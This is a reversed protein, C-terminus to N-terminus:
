DDGKGNLVQDNIYDELLKAYQLYYKRLKHFEDDEVEEFNSYHKFCYHFGEDRTKSRVYQAEEIKM